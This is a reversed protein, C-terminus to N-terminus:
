PALRLDVNNPSGSTTQKEESRQRAEKRLAIIEQRRLKERQRKELPTAVPKDQLEKTTRRLVRIMIEIGITTLCRRTTQGDDNIPVPLMAQIQKVQQHSM